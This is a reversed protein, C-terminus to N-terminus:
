IFGLCYVSHFVQKKKKRESLLELCSLLSLPCCTKSMLNCCHSLDTLNSSFASFCCLVVCCPLMMKGLEGPGHLVASCARWRPSQVAFM